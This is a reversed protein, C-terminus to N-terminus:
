MMDEQSRRRIASYLGWHWRLIYAEPFAQL